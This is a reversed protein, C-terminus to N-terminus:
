LQQSHSFCYFYFLFLIFLINSCKVVSIAWLSSISYYCTSFSFLFFSFFFFSLFIIIFFNYIGRTILPYCGSVSAPQRSQSDRNGLTDNVPKLPPARPYRFLYDSSAAKGGSELQRLRRV